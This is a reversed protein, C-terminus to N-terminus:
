SFVGTFSSSNKKSIDSPLLRNFLFLIFARNITFKSVTESGAFQKFMNELSLLSSANALSNEEYIRTIEPDETRYVRTDTIFITDIVPAATYIKKIVFSTHHRNFISSM